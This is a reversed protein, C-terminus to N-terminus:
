ATNSYCSLLTPIIQQQQEPLRIFRPVVRIQETSLFHISTDYKTCLIYWFFPRRESLKLFADMWKAENILPKIAFGEVRDIGIMLHAAAM